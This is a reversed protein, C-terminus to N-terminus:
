FPIQDEESGEILNHSGSLKKPKKSILKQYHMKCKIKATFLQGDRNKAVHIEILDPDESTDYKHPRFPFLVIDADQEISGSERLDSLKPRKDDRQECQRSLQSLFIWNNEMKKALNAGTSTVESLFLREDMSRKPKLLHIHDVYFFDVKKKLNEKKAAGVIKDWRNSKSIITFNDKINKLKKLAKQVKDWDNETMEKRKIYQLKVEAINALLRNVLKKPLMELSFFVVRYGDSAQRLAMDLAFMTKGMSPRGGIIIIEGPQTEAGDLEEYPLQRLDVEDDAFMEAIDAVTDVQYDEDFMSAEETLSNVLEEYIKKFTEGELLREHYSFFKTSWKLCLTDNIIQKKLEFTNPIYKCKKIELLRSKRKPSIKKISLLAEISIPVNAKYRELIDEFIGRNTISDGFIDKNISFEIIEEPKEFLNRLLQIQLDKM